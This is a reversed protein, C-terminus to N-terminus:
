YTNDNNKHNVGDDVDDEDGDSFLNWNEFTWFGPSQVYLTIIGFVFNLFFIYIFLYSLYQEKKQFTQLTCLVSCFRGGDSVYLNTKIHKIVNNNNHALASLSYQM